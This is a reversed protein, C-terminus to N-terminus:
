NRPMLSAGKTEADIARQVAQVFADRARMAV